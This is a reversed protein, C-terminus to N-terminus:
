EGGAHNEEAMMWPSNTMYKPKQPVSQSKYELDGKCGNVNAMMREINYYKKM